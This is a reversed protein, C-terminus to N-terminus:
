EAGGIRRPLLGKERSYEQVGKSVQMMEIQESALEESEDVQETVMNSFISVYLDADKPDLVMQRLFHKDGHRAQWLADLLKSAFADNSEPLTRPLKFWTRRFHCRCLQQSDVWHHVGTRPV